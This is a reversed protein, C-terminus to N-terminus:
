LRSNVAGWFDHSRPYTLGPSTHFPTPLPFSPTSPLLPACTQACLSARAPARSPAGLSHLSRGLLWEAPPLFGLCVELSSLSESTQGLGEEVRNGVRCLVFASFWLSLSPSRALVQRPVPLCAPLFCPDVPTAPALPFLLEPFLTAASVSLSPLLLRPPALSIM